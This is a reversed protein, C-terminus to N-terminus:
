RIAIHNEVVTVGSVSWAAREAVNRENWARVKGELIVKGGSVEIIIGGADIEANRRLANEIHSRIDSASAVPSITLQNDVGVVGGLKKVANEAATRQFHWRVEGTLTVWGRQVTVGIADEPLAIDWAIIDVARSAIEDDAHKKREPYRVEMEEAIARVGRVRRAAAEAAMKEASSGVHGTLTVVGKEVAVGINAADVSPEFDLEELVDQRIDLDGM